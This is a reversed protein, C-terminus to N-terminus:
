PSNHAFASAIKEAMTRLNDAVNEALSDLPIVEGDIAAAIAAVSRPDFQPQVFLVKVGEARAKAILRSLQRPTPSKGEVEIAEQTLGYADAFYGFAPHFVYFSSGRHPALKERIERDLTDLDALTKQLKGEYGERNEPDQAALAAAMRVAMEQLKEPSLWIHPDLGDHSGNHHEHSTTMRRKRISASLDVQTLGVMNEKIKDLLRDEFELGLSCYLKARGLTTLQAPSLTFTHPDQGRDVLVHTRILEGGVQEALWKQPPISVVIDMPLSAALGPIPLFFLLLLFYLARFSKM